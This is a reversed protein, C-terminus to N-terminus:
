LGSGVYEASFTEFHSVTGVHPATEIDYVNNGVIEQAQTDWIMVSKAAPRSAPAKTQETAVALYRVKRPGRRQGTSMKRFAARAREEAVQRQRKTAAHVAVIRVYEVILSEDAEALDGPTSLKVRVAGDRRPLTDIQRVTFATDASPQACGALLLAAGGTLGSCHWLFRNM